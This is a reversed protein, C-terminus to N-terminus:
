LRTSKRDLYIGNGGNGSIVNRAGSDTGGITIDHPNGYLTLGDGGNSVALSGTADIGIYNGQITSNTTGILVLGSSANGSIVNRAGSNTGGITVPGAGNWVLIGTNDNPAARAGSADTGIYNGLVINGSTNTNIILIGDDGNGCIVNRQTANIGGITNYSAGLIVANVSKCNVLVRATKWAPLQEM